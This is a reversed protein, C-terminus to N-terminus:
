NELSKRIKQAVVQLANPADGFIEGTNVKTSPDPHLTQCTELVHEQTETEKGCARCTTDPYKNRFNNKVDIMRTRALFITSANIRNLEALYKQRKLPEWDVRGELLFKIKSKDRGNEEIKNKFYRATKIKIKTKVCPKKGQTDEPTVELLDKAQNTLKKWLNNEETQALKQLRSNTSNSLRHDMMVKQRISITEPDLLGTEIYLAERPTTQPTMLVRRIINDMLSNLAKTESKNPNWTECAYTIIAIVTCELLEWITRMEIDIFARNGTIALITQYAAEVKGKLAKIHDKMNNKANQIFGLYKYLECYGLIMEGLNFIPRDKGGGIKMAKSKPEGFEIHYKGSINDTIDLMEQLEKPETTIHIVDDMWLLCGIKEQLSPIYIGLDKETVAKSIEDMMLAYQLVSLVGGQRISDKIQIERTPGDKTQINATLNLNLKRIIDWEPTDLGEKHMVYMIADLWAKDYAKTVDLFVMYVTKKNKRAEFIAENLIALHDVTAVGKKGGAQNNSMHVKQTARENIVREYTKGLNSSLTIGRENSCKGRKGKGKYLRNIQGKQWQEPITKQEILNNFVQRFTELTEASAERMIENPLNDPGNAKGSKLKKVTNVLEDMTIPVATKGMAESQEIRRVTNKIENTWNEFGERGERAQYLTEYYNAIHEKAEAPDEIPNGQEDTTIYDASGQKGCIKRRARWFLTSKTGGESIIKQVLAKTQDQQIKTIENRLKKQNDLLQELVEAKNESNEKVARHFKKRLEKVTRKLAKQEENMPTKNKKGIRIKVSGVTEELIKNMEHEFTNYNKLTERNLNAMRTNYEAWGEKNNIKWRKIVRTEKNLPCKMGIIMTNHDTDKIGRIRLNGPEDVINETVLESDRKRIIVYDIVSREQTNNRNVRTWTGSGSQISIPTLETDELLEELYRGNRSTTQTITGEQKNIRIKANFDGTLIIPGQQKLKVVQTKIQSFEREIVEQSENEQKGYYVGIFVKNSQHTNLQIWVIEQNQDELDDVPQCKNILDERVAIAVGGGKRQTRNKEFWTGYGDIRPPPGKTFGYYAAAM